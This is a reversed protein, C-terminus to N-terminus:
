VESIWNANGESGRSGWQRWAVTLGCEVRVGSAWRLGVAVM